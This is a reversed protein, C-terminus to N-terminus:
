LSMGEDEYTIVVKVTGQFEGPIDKVAKNLRADWLDSIDEELDVIAEFGHYEKEFIIKSM